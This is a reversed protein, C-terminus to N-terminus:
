HVHDNNWWKTIKIYVSQLLDFIFFRILSHLFALIIANIGINICQKTPLDTYESDKDSLDITM